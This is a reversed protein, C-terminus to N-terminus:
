FAIDSFKTPSTMSNVDLCQGIKLENQRTSIFATSQLPWLLTNIKLEPNLEMLLDKVVCLLTNINILSHLSM